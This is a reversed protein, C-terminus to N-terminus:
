CLDRKNYRYFAIAVFITMLIFSVIVYTVSLINEVLQSPLFYKLPTFMRVIDVNEFMDYVVSLIFTVFFIMNSYAMSKETRKIVAGLCMALSFFLFSIIFVAISYLFIEKNINEDSKISMVALVSFVYNLICFASLYISSSVMKTFLIYSRKRPKTCIFEYTKDVLEGTVVNNGLSIGYICGCIITYFSLIAYYGGLSTVDVGVMGFLALVIKPFQEFLKNIDISGATEMGTFKMMGSFLLLALGITWFIFVKLHSKLERKIINM